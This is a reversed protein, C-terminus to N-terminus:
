LEGRTLYANKLFTQATLRKENEELGDHVMQRILDNKSTKKRFALDRLQDDIKKPLYVTRLVLYGKKSIAAKKKRKAIKKTQIVNM